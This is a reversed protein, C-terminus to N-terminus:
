GQDHQWAEALQSARETEGPGLQTAVRRVREAAPEYESQQALSYWMLAQVLDAPVGRGREYAEGLRFFGRPDGHKAALDYWSVAEAYDRPM